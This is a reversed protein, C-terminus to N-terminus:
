IPPQTPALVQRSATALLFFGMREGPFFQIGTTRGM